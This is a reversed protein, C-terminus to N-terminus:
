RSTATSIVDSSRATRRRSCTACRASRAAERHEQKPVMWPRFAPVSTSFGSIQHGAAIADRRRPRATRRGCRRRHPSACRAATRARHRGRQELPRQGLELAEVGLGIRAPRAPRAPRARACREVGSCRTRGEGRRGGGAAGTNGPTSVAPQARRRTAARRGGRSGLRARASKAGGRPQRRVGHRPRRGPVSPRRRRGARSATGVASASRDRGVGRRRPREGSSRASGRSRGGAVRGTVPGTPRRRRGVRSGGACARGNAYRGGRPM